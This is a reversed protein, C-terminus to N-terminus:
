IFLYKSLNQLLSVLLFDNLCERLIKKRLKSYTEIWRVFLTVGNRFLTAMNSYEHRNVSPKLKAIFFAELTKSTMGDNPAALLFSWM